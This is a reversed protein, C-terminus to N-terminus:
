LRGEESYTRYEDYLTSLKSGDAQGGVVIGQDNYYVNLVADYYLHQSSSSSASSSSVNNYKVTSATSNTKIQTTNSVTSSGSEITIIQNATCGNFQNNGGYTLTISHEGEGEGTIVLYGKGDNDTRISYNENKADDGKYTMNVTQNAVPKGTLDKLQFEFIDGNKLKSNSLVTIETNTKGNTTTQPHAFISVGIVAIILIILIAIIVNKNM